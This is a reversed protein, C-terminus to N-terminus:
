ARYAAPPSARSPLPCVRWAHSSPSSARLFVVCFFANIVRSRVAGIYVFDFLGRRGWWAARGCREGWWGVGGRMCRVNRKSRSLAASTRAPTTASTASSRRSVCSSTTSPRASAAAPPAPRSRALASVWSLTPSPRTRPRARGTRCWSAGGRGAVGYWVFADAALMPAHTRAHGRASWPSRLLFLLVGALLPHSLPGIFCPRSLLLTALLSSGDGRRGDRKDGRREEGRVALGSRPVDQLGPHGGLHHRDPEGQAASRLGGEERHVDQHAGRQDSHRSVGPQCHDPPLSLTLARPLPCCVGPPRGVIGVGWSGLLGSVFGQLESRSVGFVGLLDDGVIQTTSMMETLKTYAEWDDQDFPDEITVVPFESV